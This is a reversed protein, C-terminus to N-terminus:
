IRQTRLSSQPSYNLNLRHALNFNNKYTNFILYTTIPALFKEQGFLLL